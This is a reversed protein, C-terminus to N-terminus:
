LLLFVSSPSTSMNMLASSSTIPRSSPLLLSLWHLTQSQPLNCFFFMRVQVLNNFPPKEKYTKCIHMYFKIKKRKRRAFAKTTILIYAWTVTLNENECYIVCRKLCEFYRSRSLHWQQVSLELFVSYKTM